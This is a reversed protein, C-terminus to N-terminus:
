RGTSVHFGEAGQRRCRGDGGLRGPRRRSASTGGAAPAGRGAARKNKDIFTMTASGMNSTVMWRAEPAVYIMHTRNQGTGLVWDVKGAAPDYSGIAKAGQRSGCSAPPSISAMRPASHVSTSSPLPKM